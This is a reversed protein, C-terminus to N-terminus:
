FKQSIHMFTSGTAWGNDCMHADQLPLILARCKMTLRVRLLSCGYFLDASKELKKVNGEGMNATKTGQLDYFNYRSPVKTILRPQSSKQRGLLDIHTRFDTQLWRCSTRKM